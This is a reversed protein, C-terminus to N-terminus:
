ISIKDVQYLHNANYDSYMFELAEYNTASVKQTLIIEDGANIVIANNEQQMNINEPYTATGTTSLVGVIIASLESTDWTRVNKQLIDPAM